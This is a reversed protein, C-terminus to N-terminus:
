FCNSKLSRYVFTELSILQRHTLLIPPTLSYTCVYVLLKLQDQESSPINESPAGDRGIHADRTVSVLSAMM